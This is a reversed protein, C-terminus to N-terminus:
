ADARGGSSSRWWLLAGMVLLCAALRRRVRDQAWINPEEAYILERSSKILRNTVKIFLATMHKSSNYHQSVSNVNGIAKMIGSLSAHMMELSGGYLVSTARELQSLFRVNDRSENARDTLSKDQESWREMVPSKALVLVTTAVVVQPLKIEDVIGNFAATRRKWYAVEVDPGADDPESRIQDNVALVKAIQANWSSVM